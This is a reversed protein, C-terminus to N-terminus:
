TVSKMCLPLDSNVRVSRDRVRHACPQIRSGLSMFRPSRTRGPLCRVIFRWKLNGKLIRYHESTGLESQENNQHCTDRQELCIRMRSFQYRHTMQFTQTITKKRETSHFALEKCVTLDCLYGLTIVYGAETAVEFGAM